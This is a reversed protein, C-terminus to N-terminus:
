FHLGVILQPSLAFGASSGKKDMVCDTPDACAESKQAPRHMSLYDFGVQGGISFTRSFYYDLGGALKVSLGHIGTIRTGNQTEARGVRAYGLGLQVYPELSGYPVRLGVEGGLNWFSFDQTPTYRFRAGLTFYLLRLGAAGGFSFASVAKTPTELLDRNSFGTVNLLQYGVFGEAWAFELGRGADQRDSQDLEKEIETRQDGRDPM